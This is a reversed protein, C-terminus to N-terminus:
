TVDHTGRAPAAIVHARDAEDPARAEGLAHPNPQLQVVRAALVVPGHVADPVVPTVCAHKNYVAITTPTSPPPQRCHHPPKHNGPRPRPLHAHDNPLCLPPPCVRLAWCEEVKDVGTRRVASWMVGEVVSGVGSVDLTRSRSGGRGSEEGMRGRKM